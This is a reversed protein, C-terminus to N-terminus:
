EIVVIQHKSRLRQDAIHRRFAIGIGLFILMSGLLMIAYSLQSPLGGVTTDIEIDLQEDQSVWTLSAVIGRMGLGGALLIIGSSFCKREWGQRRFLIELVKKIAYITIDNWRKM